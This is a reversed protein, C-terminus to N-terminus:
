DFLETWFSKRKKYYRDYRDRDYDSRPTGMRRGTTTMTM